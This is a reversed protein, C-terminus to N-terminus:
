IRSGFALGIKISQEVAKKNHRPLTGPHALSIVSVNTNPYSGYESKDSSFAKSATLLQAHIELGIVVEFEDNM